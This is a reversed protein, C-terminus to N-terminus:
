GGQRPHSLEAARKRDVPLEVLRPGIRDDEEPLEGLGMRGGPDDAGAATGSPLQCGDHPRLSALDVLVLEVFARRLRDLGVTGPRWVPQSRQYTGFAITVCACAATVSQKRM